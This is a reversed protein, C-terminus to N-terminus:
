QAGAAYLASVEAASLSRNYLRVDDIDGGYYNGGSVNRGIYLNGALPLGIDATRYCTATLVGDVYVRIQSNKSKDWSFGYHHWNSDAVVTSDCMTKTATAVDQLEVRLVNSATRYIHYGNATWGGGVGFLPGVSTFRAWAYVSIASRNVPVGMGLFVNSDVGNFTYAGNSQGNQGTTAVANNVTGNNGVGSADNGNGNLPWWGLLGSELCSGNKAASNNSSVSSVVSASTTNVYQLCFTNADNNPYYTTTADSPTIIGATIASAQSTPINEANQLKYAELKKYSQQLSSHQAAYRAQNQVGSYGIITLTALIGIVVIVILLEVVTFGFERHHRSTGVVKM